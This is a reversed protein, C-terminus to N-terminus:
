LNVARLPSIRLCFTPFIATRFYVNVAGNEILLNYFSMRPEAEFASHHRPKVLLDMPANGEAQGATVLSPDAEILIKAIEIRDCGAAIGLLSIGRWTRSRDFRKKRELPATHSEFNIRILDLNPQCRSVLYAIRLYLLGCRQPPLRIFRKFRPNERIVCIERIKSDADDM